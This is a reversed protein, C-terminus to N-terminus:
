DACGHVAGPPACSNLTDRGVVSNTIDVRSPPGANYIGGGNAASNLGVYTRQVVLRGDTANYLGGGKSGATNRDLTDRYTETYGGQGNYIGGGDTNAHNGRIVSYQMTLSGNNYLGGGGGGGRRTTNDQISTQDVILRGSDNSVGAGNDATNGMITSRYLVMNGRSNLLGGGTDNTPVTNDTLGGSVFTNQLELMAGAAVEIIRFPVATASRSIQTSEGGIIRVEGKILLGDPGRGTASPATLVYNCDSALLLIGSGAENAANIASILSATSCSVRVTARAHAASAM